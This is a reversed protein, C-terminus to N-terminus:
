QDIFEQYVRYCSELEEVLDFYTDNDKANEIAQLISIMRNTYVKSKEIFETCLDNDMTNAPSLPVFRM